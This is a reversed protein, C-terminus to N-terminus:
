GAPEAAPLTVRRVSIVRVPKEIMEGKMVGEGRTPSRPADWIRRVVDMGEVVRGFAAFGAVLEPNTSAPDADLGPMDSLLISFDGNATGPADRAM